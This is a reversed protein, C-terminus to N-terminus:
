LSRVLDAHGILVALGHPYRQRYFFWLSESYEQDKVTLKASEFYNSILITHVSTDNERFISESYHL